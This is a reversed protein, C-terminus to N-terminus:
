SSKLKPGKGRVEYPLQTTRFAVLKDKFVSLYALVLDKGRQTLAYVPITVGVQLLANPGIEKRLITSASACVVDAKAVHKVDAKSVRTNCVSFVLVDAKSSKEFNRIGNIARAQFGAISVAIHKFGLSFARKVGAVQDIRAVTKDLVVGGCHEVHEITGLIPSTKIIGTLRAGIGQVLKGNSTLVTGAGECVVVACDIFGRELWVNMMESAGYAVQPDPDFCRDRCCFGFDQIKKGVSNQVTKADVKKTGHLIEHLPCSKVLPETLATVGEELIRVHSGCCYIEHAGCVRCCIEQPGDSM